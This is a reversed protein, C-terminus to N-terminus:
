KSFKVVLSPLVHKKPDPKCVIPLKINCLIIIMIITILCFTKHHTGSFNTECNLLGTIM